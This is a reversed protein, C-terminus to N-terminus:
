KVSHEEKLSEALRSYLDAVWPDAAAPKPLKGGRMDFPAIWIERGSGPVQAILGFIEEIAGDGLALSGASSEGGQVFIDGGMGLRDVTRHATDEANPYDIKISLHHRSNPDLTALRYFGEPVQGDGDKRKPGPGGSAALIDFAGALTFAGRKGAVWVELRRERKFAVLRARQPPWAIGAERCAPGFVRQAAPGFEAISGGVTRPEALGMTMLTVRAYGPYKWGTAGALALLSAGAIAASRRLRM